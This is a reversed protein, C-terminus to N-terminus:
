CCGKDKKKEDLSKKRKLDDGAKLEIAKDNNKKKSKLDKLDM